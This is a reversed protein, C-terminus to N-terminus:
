SAPARSSRPACGQQNTLAKKLTWKGPGPSKRYIEAVQALTAEDIFIQWATKALVPIYGRKVWRSITSPIVGYKRSGDMISIGGPPAKRNKMELEATALVMQIKEEKLETKEAVRQLNIKDLDILRRRNRM